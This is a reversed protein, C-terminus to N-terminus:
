HAEQRGTLVGRRGPRPREQLAQELGEEVFRKRGRGVKAAGVTLIEAIEEDTFHEAAKLLIRARIVRRASPKGRRILQHLQDREEASLDVIYKATPM